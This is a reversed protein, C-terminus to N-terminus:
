IAYQKVYKPQLDSYGLLDHYVLFRDMPLDKGAGIGITPISVTETEKGLLEPIGELVLM